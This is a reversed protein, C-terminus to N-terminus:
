SGSSGTKNLVLKYSVSRGKFKNQKLLGKDQLDGLHRKATAPSARTLSVYKRNTMGGLFGQPERDLM